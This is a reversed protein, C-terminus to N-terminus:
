LMLVLVAFILSQILTHINLTAIDISIFLSITGFILFFLHPRIILIEENFAAISVFIKDNMSKRWIIM